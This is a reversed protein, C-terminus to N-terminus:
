QNSVMKVVNDPVDEEGPDDPPDPDVLGDRLFRILSSLADWLRIVWVGTGIGLAWMSVWDDSGGKLDHIFYAVVFGGVLSAAPAVGTMVTLAVLDAHKIYRPM